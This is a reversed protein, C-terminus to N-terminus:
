NRDTLNGAMERSSINNDIVRRSHAPGPVDRPIKSERDRERILHCLQPSNVLNVNEGSLTGNVSHIGFLTTLTPNM